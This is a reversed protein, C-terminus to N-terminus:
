VTVGLMLTLLAERVPIGNKAQDFYLAHPTHDIDCSIENVRPLPHMIKLNDKARNLTSSDIVYANKVKEYDLLDPFREKQIRTVYLVDLHHIVEHVDSSEHCLINMARLEDLQDEPMKLIEPSIFFMEADFHSLAHSLSHVTRGYKLDGLFGIKLDDFSRRNKRITYLDLFTQSPHQNAGDGGNIVPINAAEAAVRAAGEMPHRMVIVDAYGEVVAISDSLSEGKSTSSVAPNAFGLVSGGQRIMASEFSLRTRTSPEFFLTALIKGQLMAKHNKDLKAATDLVHLIEEKAFDKMSIIDREKFDM